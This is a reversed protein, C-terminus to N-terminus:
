NTMNEFKTSDSVEIRIIAPTAIEGNITDGEIVMELGDDPCRYFSLALLDGGPKYGAFEYRSPQEFYLIVTLGREDEGARGLADCLRLRLLCTQWSSLLVDLL